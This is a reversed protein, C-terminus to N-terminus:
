SSQEFQAAAYQLQQGQLLAAAAAAANAASCSVSIECQITVKMCHSHLGNSEVHKSVAM